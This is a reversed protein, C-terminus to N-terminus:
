DGLGEGVLGAPLGEAGGTEVRVDQLVIGATRVAPLCQRVLQRLEVANDHFAHQHLLPDPTHKLLFATKPLASHLPQFPM